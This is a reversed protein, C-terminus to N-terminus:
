VYPILHVLVIIISNKIVNNSPLDLMLSQYIFNIRKISYTFLLQDNQGYHSWCRTLNLGNATNVFFFQILYYMQIVTRMVISRFRNCHKFHSSKASTNYFLSTHNFLNIKIFIYVSQLFM